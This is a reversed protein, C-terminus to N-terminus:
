RGQQYIDLKIHKRSNCLCFMILRLFDKYNFSFAISKCVSIPKKKKFFLLGM